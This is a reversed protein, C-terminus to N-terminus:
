NITLICASDNIIVSTKLSESELLGHNQKLDTTSKKLVEILESSNDFYTKKKTSNKVLSVYVTKYNKKTPTEKEIETTIHKFFSTKKDSNKVEVKKINKGETELKIDVKYNDILIDNFLVTQNGFNDDVETAEVKYFDQFDTVREGIFNKLNKFSLEQSFCNISVLTLFCLLHTRM